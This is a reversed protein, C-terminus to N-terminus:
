NSHWTKDCKRVHKLIKVMVNKDFLKTSLVYKKKEKSEVSNSLFM